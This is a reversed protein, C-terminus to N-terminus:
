LGAEVDVTAEGDSLEELVVVFEPGVGVGVRHGGVLESFQLIIHDKAFAEGLKHGSLTKPIGFLQFVHVPRM